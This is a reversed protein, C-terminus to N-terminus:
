AMRDQETECADGELGLGPTPVHLSYKVGGGQRLAREPHTPMMQHDNSM